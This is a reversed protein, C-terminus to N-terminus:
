YFIYREEEKICYISAPYLRIDGNEENVIFRLTGDIVEENSVKVTANHLGKFISYNIDDSEDITLYHKQGMIKGAFGEEFYSKEIINVLEETKSIDVKIEHKLM